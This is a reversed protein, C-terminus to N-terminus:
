KRMMNQKMIRDMYRKFFEKTNISVGIECNAEKSEDILTFGEDNVKIFAKRRTFLEPWIFMSVAAADFL